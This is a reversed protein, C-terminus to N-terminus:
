LLDRQFLIDPTKKNFYCISKREPGDGMSSRVNIGAASPSTAVAPFWSSQPQSTPAPPPQPAPPQRAPPAVLQASRTAEVDSHDSLKEIFDEVFHVEREGTEHKVHVKGADEYYAVRTTEALPWGFGSRAAGVLRSLWNQGGASSCSPQSLPLPGSVSAVIAAQIGGGIAPTPLAGGFSKPYPPQFGILHCLFNAMEQKEEETPNGWGHMAIWAHRIGTEAKSLTLDGHKTLGMKFTRLKATRFIIDWQSAHDGTGKGSNHTIENGSSGITWPRPGLMFHNRLRAHMVEINAVPDDMNLIINFKVGGPETVMIGAQKDLQPFRPYSMKIVAGVRPRWHSAPFSSLFTAMKRELADPEALPPDDHGWVHAEDTNKERRAKASWPGPASAM